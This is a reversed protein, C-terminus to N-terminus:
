KGLPVLTEAREQIERREQQVLTEPVQTQLRRPIRASGLGRRLRELAPQELIEQRAPALAVRLELVQPVRPVPEPVGLVVVAAQKRGHLHQSGL